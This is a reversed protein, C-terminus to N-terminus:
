EKGIKKTTRVTNLAAADVVHRNNLFLFIRANKQSPTDWKMLIPRWKEKINIFCKFTNKLKLFPKHCALIYVIEWSMINYFGLTLM